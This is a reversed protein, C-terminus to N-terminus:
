LKSLLQLSEAVLRRGDETIRAVKLEAGGVPMRECAILGKRELDELARRFTHHNTCVEHALGGLQGSYIGAQGRLYLTRLIEIKISTRDRRDVQTGM